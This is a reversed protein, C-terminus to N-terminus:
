FNREEILRYFFQVREKFIVEFAEAVGPGRMDKLPIVFARKSLVDICMLLFLYGDNYRSLNQMDSLDAQFSDDIGKAFTIRRPIIRHVPKHLTHTDQSSLWKKADSSRAQRVLAAVGGFSGPNSPDCYVIESEMTGM